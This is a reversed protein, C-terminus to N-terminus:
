WREERENFLKLKKPEERKPSKLGVVLQGVVTHSPLEGPKIEKREGQKPQRKFQNTSGRHRAGLPGTIV